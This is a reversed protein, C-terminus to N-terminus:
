RYIYIYIYWLYHCLCFSNSSITNHINMFHIWKGQISFFFNINKHYVQIQVGIIRLKTQRDTETETERKREMERLLNRYVYRTLQPQFPPGYFMCIYLRALSLPVLISLASDAIKILVGLNKRLEKVSLYPFKILFRTSFQRCKNKEWFTSKSSMWYREQFM